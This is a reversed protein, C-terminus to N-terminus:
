PSQVKAPRRTDAFPTSPSQGKIENTLEFSLSPPPFRNEVERTRETTTAVLSRSLFHLTCRHVRRGARRDEGEALYARATPSPFITGGMQVDREAAEM